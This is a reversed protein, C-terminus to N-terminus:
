LYRVLNKMAVEPIYSEARRICNKKMKTIIEPNDKINILIDTLKREDRYDFLLGDVNNQIIEKNYKWDTAIVPVGSAFSDIVTGPFGEGEYYTPFLLAFYDKLVETSKEYDVIGKYTIFDPLEQLLQEFRARYDEEIQGYIDLTFVKRKYLENVEKVANIATEIGKEKMVRSFTCLKYPEKKPIVLKKEDVIKIRKFNPLYIVNSLGLEKLSKIMSFTEVFIGDLKKALKCLRPNKQLTEPLWGGIVVYFLKRKFFINLFLFLPIFVKVGNNAPMIIINECKRILSCCQLLLLFPNRKWAHTDVIKVKESGFFKELEETVIKTKITQGNLLKKSIGYHGCIGVKYM